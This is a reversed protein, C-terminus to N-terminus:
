SGAIVGRTRLAALLGNFATTATALDPFTAANNVVPATGALAATGGTVVLDATQQNAPASGPSMTAYMPAM